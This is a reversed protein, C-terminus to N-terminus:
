DLRAKRWLFRLFVAFMALATGVGVAIAATEALGIENLGAYIALGMAGSCLACITLALPVPVSPTDGAM